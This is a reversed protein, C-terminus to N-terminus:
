KPIVAFYKTNDFYKTDNLFEIRARTEKLIRKAKEDVAVLASM